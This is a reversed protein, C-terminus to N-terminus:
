QREQHDGATRLRLAARRLWGIFRRGLSFLPEAAAAATSMHSPIHPVAALTAADATNQLESRTLSM